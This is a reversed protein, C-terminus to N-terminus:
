SQSRLRATFIRPRSKDMGIKCDSLILKSTPSIPEKLLTVTKQGIFWM